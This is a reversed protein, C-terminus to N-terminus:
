TGNKADDVAAAAASAASGPDAAESTAATNAFTRCSSACLPEVLTVNSRFCCSSSALVARATPPAAVAGVRSPTVSASAATAITATDVRCGDSASAVAAQATSRGKSTASGTTSARMSSHISSGSSGTTLPIAHM